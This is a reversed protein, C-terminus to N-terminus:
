RKVEQVTREAISNEQTMEPSSLKHFINYKTLMEKFSMCFEPGDDSGVQNIVDSFENKSFFSLFADITVDEDNGGNAKPSFFIHKTNVCRGILAYREDNISVLVKGFSDIEVKELFKFERYLKKKGNEFFEREAISTAPKPTKKMKGM